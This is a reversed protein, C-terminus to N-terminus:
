KMKRYADAVEDPAKDRILRFSMKVGIYDIRIHRVPPNFVLSVTISRKGKEEIFM